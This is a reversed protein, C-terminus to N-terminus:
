TPRCCGRTRACRSCRPPQRAWTPWCTTTAPADDDRVVAIDPEDAIEDDVALPPPVPRGAEELLMEAIRSEDGARTDSVFVRPDDGGDVRVVGVYVDDEELLLLTLDASEDLERLLDTLAAVDDVEDLDVETATWGSPHRAM